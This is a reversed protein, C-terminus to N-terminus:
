QLILSVKDTILNAEELQHLIRELELSVEKENLKEAASQV